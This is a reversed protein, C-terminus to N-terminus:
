FLILWRSECKAMFSRFELIKLFKLFLLFTHESWIVWLFEFVVGIQIWLWICIKLLYREDRFVFGEKKRLIECGFMVLLSFSFSWFFDINSWLFEFNWVKWSNKLFFFSLLIWELNNVLIGKVHGVELFFFWCIGMFIRFKLIKM